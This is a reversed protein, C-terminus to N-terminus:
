YIIINFMKMHKTPVQLIRKPFIDMDKVWHRIPYNRKRRKVTSTKKENISQVNPTM